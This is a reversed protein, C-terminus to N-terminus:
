LVFEKIFLIGEFEYDTDYVANRQKVRCWEPVNEPHPRDYKQAKDDYHRERSLKATQLTL